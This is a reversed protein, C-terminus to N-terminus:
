EAAEAHRLQHPGIFAVGIQDGASEAEVRDLEAALVQQAIAPRVGGARNHLVGRGLRHEVTESLPDAPALGEIAAGAHQLAAAAEPVLRGTASNNRRLYPM